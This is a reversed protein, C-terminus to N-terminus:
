QHRRHPGHTPFTEPPVWLGMGGAAWEAGSEVADNQDAASHGDLPRFNDKLPAKPLVFALKAFIAQQFKHATPQERALTEGAGRRERDGCGKAEAPTQRELQPWEKRGTSLAM